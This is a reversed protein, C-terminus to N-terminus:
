EGKIVSLIYQLGEIQEEINSVVAEQISMKNIYMDYTSNCVRLEGKGTNCSIDFHSGDTHMDFADIIRRWAEAERSAKELLYNYDEVAEIANSVDNNM